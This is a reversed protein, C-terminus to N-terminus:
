NLSQSGRNLPGYIQQLKEYLQDAQFPKTLYDQMGVEKIKSNVNHSVSATMAIIPISARREDQSARIASTAAYGDMVPMHLDMLIGDFANNLIQAVAEQGNVAVVTQVGWSHLLKELLLINIRNDEVILLKLGNMSPKEKSLASGDKVEGYHLPFDIIFSFESGMGPESKLQISSNFLSLLRKVIALGLGTGGYHRTTDASAQTFPDFVADHRDTAIGIGTDSIFFQIGIEKTNQRCVVTRIGAAGTHTFKIANGALNYMIQTLRTPDTVVCCDTMEKDLELTWKLAKEAAKLELGLSIKRLLAPLNVPVAELEIKDLESKNYDLIDNIVSLLNTASFELINLNEKQEELASDKLLGTMGIVGNLPTRLEHSMTSLFVSRSEALAKAELINVQLQQNLLEKEKLNQYFAQYYLYHCLIFTLFNLLVIVDFGASALEEPDMLSGSTTGLLMYVVVPLMTAVTYVGAWWGGIIYYSVLTTMFIMQVTFINIHQIYLFVNSWIVALGSVIMIHSVVTILAPRYLLTKALVVLLTIILLARVLQLHQHYQLAVTFAILTKTASFALITLVIKIKAKKFSDPERAIVKRVSFNFFSLQKEM